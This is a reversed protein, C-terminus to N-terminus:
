PREGEWLPRDSFEPPEAKGAPQAPRQKAAQAAQRLIDQVARPDLGLHHAILQVDYGRQYWTLVMEIKHKSVM